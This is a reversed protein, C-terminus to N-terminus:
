LKEHKKMHKKLNGKQTFKAGWDYCVFPKEGTHMRAHDLFNWAKIFEKNWNDYQCHIIRKRRRPGKSAVYTVTYKYGNLVSLGDDSNNNVSNSGYIQMDGNNLAGEDMGQMSWMAFMQQMYMQYMLYQQNMVNLAEAQSNLDWLCYQSAKDWIENEEKPYQSNRVVMSNEQHEPPSKAEEKKIEDNSSNQIKAEDHNVLNPSSSKEVINM